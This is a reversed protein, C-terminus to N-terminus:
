RWNLLECTGSLEFTHGAFEIVAPGTARFSGDESVSLNEADGDLWVAMGPLRSLRVEGSGDRVDISLSYTANRGSGQLSTATGSVCNALEFSETQGNFTITARGGFGPAAKYVDSGSDAATSAAPGTSEDPNRADGGCATLGPLMPVAILLVCCIKRICTM